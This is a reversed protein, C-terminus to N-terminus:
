LREGKTLDMGTPSLQMGNELQRTGEEGSPSKNGAQLKLIEEVSYGKYTNHGYIYSVVTSEYQRNTSM